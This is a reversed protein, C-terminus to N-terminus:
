EDEVYECTTTEDTTDNINIDEREYECEPCTLDYLDNGSKEVCTGCCPCTWTILDLTYSCIIDYM